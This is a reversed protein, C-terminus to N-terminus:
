HDTDRVITNMELSKNVYMDSPRARLQSMNKFDVKKKIASHNKMARQQM